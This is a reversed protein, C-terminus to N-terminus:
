LIRLAGYRFPGRMRVGFPGGVIPGLLCGLVFTLLRTCPWSINMNKCM